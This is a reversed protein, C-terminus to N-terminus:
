NHSKCENCFHYADNDNKDDHNNHHNHHTRAQCKICYKIIKGIAKGVTIWRGSKLQMKETHM